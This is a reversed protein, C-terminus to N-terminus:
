AKEELGYAMRVLTLPHTPPQETELGQKIQTGAIPCDSAYHDAEAERVRRFLPKGIEMSKEFWEVKVGWTGDHGSCREFAAVETDPILELMRQTQQGINQVHQHCPRHYAVKGLGQRFDTNLLGERHRKLLYEFPDFVREAVKRAREDDPDVNGYEQRFMLACSPVPVLIDWGDDVLAELRPLNAEKAAMVSDFDGLELRPMGCCQEGEVFRVPIGNNELVAVLDRGIEPTQYNVYCTGFVAVKGTTEEGATPEVEPGQYGKKWSTFTRSAYRPLERERHVGLSKEMAARLPRQRNAWNVLPAVVPRAAVRGLTDTQTLIKDRFSPEGDKYQIAKARLMLHPFDVEWEHPPVYPCKAMFCMDCLYCRDVVQFHDERTLSDVEMTESEDILDFLTPFANCLSLCRRCTHCIDFVRDMEQHLADKDWFSDEGWKLPHRQPAKSAGEEAM